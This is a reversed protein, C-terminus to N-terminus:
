FTEQAFSDGNSKSAADGELMEGGDGVMRGFGRGEGGTAICTPGQPVGHNAPLAARRKAGAALEIIGRQAASRTGSM